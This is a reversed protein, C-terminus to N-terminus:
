QYCQPYLARVDVHVMGLDGGAHERRDGSGDAGSGSKARRYLGNNQHHQAASEPAQEADNCHKSCTEERARVCDEKGSGGEGDQDRGDLGREDLHEQDGAGTCEAVSGNSARQAVRQLWNHHHHRCPQASQTRQEDVKERQRRAACRPQRFRVRLLSFFAKGGSHHRKRAGEAHVALVLGDKEM